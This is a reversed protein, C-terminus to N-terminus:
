IVHHQLNIQWLNTRIYIEILKDLYEKEEFLKLVCDLALIEGMLLNYMPLNENLFQQAVISKSKKMAELLELVQKPDNM